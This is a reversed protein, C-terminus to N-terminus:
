ITCNQVYIFQRILFALLTAEYISRVDINKKKLHSRRLSVPNDPIKAGYFGTGYLDVDEVYTISNKKTPFIRCVYIEHSEQYVKQM